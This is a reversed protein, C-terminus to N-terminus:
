WMEEWVTRYGDVQEIYGLLASYFPEGGVTASDGIIILKRRARTLAVNMRRTDALFGIAGEANSRVLSIIVAEQERGQMGDISGIELGADLHFVLQERLLRVQAAYPSLIGIQTPRLGAELLEAVKRGVLGAEAENYRSEGDAEVTETYDAGATDILEIATTTRPTPLVEPLDSLLHDAVTADAVLSDAYFMQSSFDMIHRHMRYQITLQRALDPATAILRELMSIGLGGAQAARSVITPPLQQHDGALVLRRCYRLPIWSSPETSQAAEDIVCLDFPREGLFREDLGTL